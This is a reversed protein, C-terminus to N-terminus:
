KRILLYCSDGVNLEQLHRYDGALCMLLGGFSAYVAVKAGASDDYKYVKGFMVYDYENALNDSSTDLWPERQTFQQFSSETSTLSTALVLTFKEAPEIPYIETNVDLTCEM